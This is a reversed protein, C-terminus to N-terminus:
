LYITAQKVQQEQQRQWWEAMIAHGSNWMQAHAFAVHNLQMVDKDPMMPRCRVPENLLCVGSRPLVPDRHGLTQSVFPHSIDNMQRRFHSANPYLGLSFPGYMFSILTKTLGKFIPFILSLQVSIGSMHVHISLCHRYLSVRQTASQKHFVISLVICPPISPFQFPCLWM